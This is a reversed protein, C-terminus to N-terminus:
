NEEIVNIAQCQCFTLCGNQFKISKSHDDQVSNYCSKLHLRQAILADRM